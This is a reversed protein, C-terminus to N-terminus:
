DVSNTASTIRGSEMDRSDIVPWVPWWKLKGLGVLVNQKRKEGGGLGVEMGNRMKALRQPTKRENSGLLSPISTIQQMIKVAIAM